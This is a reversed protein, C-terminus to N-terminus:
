NKVQAKLKREENLETLNYFKNCPIYFPKQKTEEIKEVKKEEFCWDILKDFLKM